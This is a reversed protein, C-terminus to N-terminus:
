KLTSRLMWATKEHTTIRATLLDATAEDHIESAIGIVERSKRAISEHAKGLDELMKNSDIDGEIEEISTLKNFEKFTGPAKFGLTRIREAIDDVAQAMETYQEEFMEHLEKFRPGEVNWHYNHTKLYLFYSDALISSLGNAVTKMGKEEMGLNM